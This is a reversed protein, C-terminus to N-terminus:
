KKLLEGNQNTFLNKLLYAVASLLGSQAISAWDFNLSGGSLTDKVLVLVSALIAVILGKTLDWVNIKFLGSNQM